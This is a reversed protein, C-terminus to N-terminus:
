NNIQTDIFNNLTPVMRDLSYIFIIAIITSFYYRMRKHIIYVSLLIALISLFFISRWTIQVAANYPQGIDFPYPWRSSIVLVLIGLQFLLLSASAYFLLENDKTKPPASPQMIIARAAITTYIIALFAFGQIDQTPTPIPILSWAFAITEEYAAALVKLQKWHLNLGILNLAGWAGFLSAVFLWGDKFAARVEGLISM